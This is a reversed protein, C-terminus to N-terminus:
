RKTLLTRSWTGFVFTQFTLVIPWMSVKYYQNKWLSRSKAYPRWVSGLELDCMLIYPTPSRIRVSCSIFILTDCSQINVELLIYKNWTFMQNWFVHWCYNKKCFNKYNWLRIIIILFGHNECVGVKRLNWGGFNALKGSQPLNWVTFTSM